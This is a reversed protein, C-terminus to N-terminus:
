LLGLKLLDAWLKIVNNIQTIHPSLVNKILTTIFLHVTLCMCTHTWVYILSIRETMDSEKHGRPGYVGHFEGPWFVPTPLRERTWSRKGVRDGENWAPEKGASGCPFFSHLPYGIGEGASRGLVPISCPDWVNCASDKGVSSGPFSRCIYSLECNKLQKYWMKSKLIGKLYESHQERKLQRHTRGHMWDLM